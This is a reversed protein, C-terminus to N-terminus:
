PRALAILSAKLREIETKFVDYEEEIGELNGNRGSTELRLAAEFAPRAYFEGVLGKLAHAAHELAKSDCNSVAEQLEPL